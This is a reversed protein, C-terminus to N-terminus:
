SNAMLILRQLMCNVDGMATHDGDLKHYRYLMRNGPQGAWVAHARMACHWAQSEAVPATQWSTATRNLAARDFPANWALLRRGQMLARVNGAVDRFTPCNRVDSNKIGHIQEASFSIPVSPRMRQVLLPELKWQGFHRGVKAIALEVVQDASSLGTTETDVLLWDHHADLVARAWEAAMRRHQQPSLQRLRQWQWLLSFDGSEPPEGTLTGAIKARHKAHVRAPISSELENSEFRPATAEMSTRQHISQLPSPPAVNCHRGSPGFSANRAGEFSVPAQRRHANDSQSEATSVPRVQARPTLGGLPPPESLHLHRWYPETRSETAKVVASVMVRYHGAVVVDFLDELTVTGVRLMECLERANLLERGGRISRFMPRLRWDAVM